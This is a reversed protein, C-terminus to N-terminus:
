QGSQALVSLQDEALSSGVPGDLVWGVGLGVTFLALAPLLARVILDRSVGLLTPTTQDDRYRTLLTLGSGGSESQSM